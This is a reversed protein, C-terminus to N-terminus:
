KHPEHQENSYTDRIQSINHRTRGKRQITQKTIGAKNEVFDEESLIESYNYFFSWFFYFLSQM